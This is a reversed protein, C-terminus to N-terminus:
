KLPGWTIRIFIWYSSTILTIFTFTINIFLSFSFRRTILNAVKYFVLYHERINLHKINERNIGNRYKKIYVSLKEINFIFAYDSASCVLETFMSNVSYVSGAYIIKLVRVILLVFYKLIFRHSIKTIENSFQVNFNVDLIMELERFSKRMKLEVNKREYANMNIAVEIFLPVINQLALLIFYFPLIVGEFTPPTCLITISVFSFQLLIIVFLSIKSKSLFNVGFCASIHKVLTTSKIQFGM